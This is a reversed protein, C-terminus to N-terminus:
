IGTKPKKEKKKKKDSETEDDIEVEGPLDAETWEGSDPSATGPIAAPAGLKGPALKAGCIPCDPWDPQVTGGCKPCTPLAEWFRDEPAMDEVKTVVLEAPTYMPPRQCRPCLGPNEMDMKAGCWQCYLQGCQTCTLNQMDVPSGCTHCKFAKLETKKIQDMSKKIMESQRADFKEKQAQQIMLQEEVYNNDLLRNAQRVKRDHDAQAIKSHAELQKRLREKEPDEKKKFM